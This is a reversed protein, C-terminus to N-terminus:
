ESTPLRPETSQVQTQLRMKNRADLDAQRQQEATRCTRKVVRSGTVRETRCRVKVEPLETLPQVTEASPSAPADSAQAAAALLIWMM